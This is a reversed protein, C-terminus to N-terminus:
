DYRRGLKQAALKSQRMFKLTERIQSVMGQVVPIVITVTKFLSIVCAKNM